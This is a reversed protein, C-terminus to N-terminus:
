ACGDLAMLGCHGQVARRTNEPLDSESWCESREPGEPRAVSLRSSKLFHLNQSGFVPNLTDAGQMEPSPVAQRIALMANGPYGPASGRKEARLSMWRVLTSFNPEWDCASCHTTTSQGAHIITQLAPTVIFGRLATIACTVMQMGLAGKWTAAM